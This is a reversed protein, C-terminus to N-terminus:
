LFYIHTNKFCEIICFIRFYNRHQYLLIKLKFLLFIKLFKSAALLAQEIKINKFFKPKEFLFIICISKKLFKFVFPPMFDPDASEGSKTNSLVNYVSQNCVRIDFLLDDTRSSFSPIINNDKTCVSEFHNHLLIFM